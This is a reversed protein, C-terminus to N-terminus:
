VQRQRNYKTKISHTGATLTSTTFKATGGNLSVAKLLTMGDYFANEQEADRQRM